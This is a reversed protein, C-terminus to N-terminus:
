ICEGTLPTPFTSPSSSHAIDFDFRQLDLPINLEDLEPRSVDVLPARPAIIRSTM